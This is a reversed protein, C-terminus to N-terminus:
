SSVDRGGERGGEKGGEGERKEVERGERRGWESERRERSVNSGVHQNEPGAAPVGEGPGAAGCEVSHPLSTM